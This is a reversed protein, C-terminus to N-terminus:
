SDLDEEDEEEVEINFCISAKISPPISSISPAVVLLEDTCCDDEEEVEEEETTCDVLMCPSSPSFTTEVEDRCTFYVKPLLQESMKLNELFRLLM